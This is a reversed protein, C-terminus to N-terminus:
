AAQRAKVDALLDDMAFGNPARGTAMSSKNILAFYLEDCNTNV